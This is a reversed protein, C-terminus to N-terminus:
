RLSPPLLEPVYVFPVRDTHVTLGASRLVDLMVERGYRNHTHLNIYPMVIGMKYVEVLLKCAEVGTKYQFQTYDIEEIGEEKMHFYMKMHEEYLDHDLTVYRPIGRENLIAVFEEHTRAIVWPLELADVGDDEFKPVKVTATPLRCDDLYLAYELNKGEVTKENSRPSIEM